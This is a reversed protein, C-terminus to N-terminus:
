DWAIAEIVALAHPLEEAVDWAVVGHGDRHAAAVEGAVGHVYAGAWAAEFEPVGAAALASVVGTLVDGTGATALHSSGTMNVVVRGSAEAIVSRHGKLIVTCGFREAATRASAIRDKQVTATDAQLLRALEAPHPTLITSAERGVVPRVDRALVNLGDADVVVPQRAEELVARVLAQQDDGDGLGPGVAVADARDVVEKFATWSDRTLHPQDSLVSTLV